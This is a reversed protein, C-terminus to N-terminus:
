NQNDSSGNDNAPAESEPGQASNDAGTPAEQNEATPAQQTDSSAVPEELSEGEVLEARGEDIHVRAVDVTFSAVQGVGHEGQKTGQADIIAIPQLVRVTVKRELESM